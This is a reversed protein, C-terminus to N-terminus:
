SKREEPQKKSGELISVYREGSINLDSLMDLIGRIRKYEELNKRIKLEELRPVIKEKLADLIRNEVVYKRPKVNLSEAVRLISRVTDLEQRSPEQEFAQAQEKLEADFLDKAQNM